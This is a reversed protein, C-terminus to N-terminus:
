DTNIEVTGLPIYQVNIVGKSLDDLAEFAASSLDLERGPGYPGRDTIKVEVTKGNALNTVSIMTGFPLTRHAATFGNMDFTEGSATGSGQVAKGYFTAKGFHYGLSFMKMRYIIEALYGRTLKQDPFIENNLNIDLLQRSAAYMTYKTFWAESPTDAFLYEEDNPYVINDFCELFMKLAEALNVEDTPRFTGDPYGNVLGKEQATILYGIYWSDAPTDSFPDEEPTDFEEAEEVSIEECALMLMKLAEARNIKDYPKFTGDPHGNIIGDIELTSIATYHSNGNSVDSFALADPTQPGFFIAATMTFAFIAALSIASIKSLTRVFM